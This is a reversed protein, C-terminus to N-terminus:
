PSPPQGAPWSEAALMSANLEDRHQRWTPMHRDLLAVFREDHTPAILHALEHLVVYEICSPAKKVLETNLWIRRDKPNCTGWRTKMRKIGWTPADVGLEGALRDLIPPVVERLRERHWRDLLRARDESTVEPRVRMEIFSRGSLAVAGAGSSPDIVVRLRYRHGLYHHSEGSVLERPSERPQAAFLTQQRHIWALRGVVALRVTEDSVALPVAVRVRGDPPYVGLHLHKIAKRVITVEVDSVTIPRADAHSLDADRERRAEFSM